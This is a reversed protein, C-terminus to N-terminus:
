VAATFRELVLDWGTFYNARGEPDDWGRHELDVRTRGNEPTFRVEVETPGRNPNVRWRLVLRHPPEWVLVDAWDGEEGTTAREYVRGGARGDFVVTSGEFIRHSGSPWWDTMRRTFTEFATEVSAEVTVTKNIAALAETTSM